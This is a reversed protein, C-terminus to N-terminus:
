NVFDHKFTTNLLFLTVLPYIVDLLNLFMMGGMDEPMMSMEVGFSALSTLAYINGVVRGLFKKQKLYGVGSMILLAILLGTLVILLVKMGTHVEDWMTLARIGEDHERIQEELNRERESINNPNESAEREERVEELQAQVRDRQREMPKVALHGAWFMAALTFVGLVNLGSGVFNLVALATLGGPRKGATM